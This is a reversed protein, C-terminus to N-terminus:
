GRVKVAPPKAPGKPKAEDGKPKMAEAEKHKQDTLLKLFFYREAVPLNYASNYDFTGQSNYALQFIETRIRVKDQPTL